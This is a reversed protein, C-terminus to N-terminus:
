SNGRQKSIVAEWTEEGCLCADTEFSWADITPLGEILPPVGGSFEIACVTKWGAPIADLKGGWQQTVGIVRSRCHIGSHPASYPFVIRYIKGIPIDAYSYGVFLIVTNEPLVEPLSPRILVTM